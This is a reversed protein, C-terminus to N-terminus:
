SLKDRMTRSKPGRFIINFVATMLFKDMKICIQTKVLKRPRSSIWHYTEDEMFRVSGPLEEWPMGSSLSMKCAKLAKLTIQVYIILLLNLQKSKM